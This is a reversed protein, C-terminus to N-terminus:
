VEAVDMSKSQDLVLLIKSDGVGELQTVAISPRLLICFAVALAGLRLAIVGVIRRANAQEVGVYTWVTIAVLALAVGLMAAPGITPISWPYAPEFALSTNAFIM